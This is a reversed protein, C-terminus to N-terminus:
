NISHFIRQDLYYKKIIKYIVNDTANKRGRPLGAPTCDNKQCKIYKIKEQKNKVSTLM